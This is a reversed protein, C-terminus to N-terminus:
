DKNMLIKVREHKDDLMKKEKDTRVIIMLIGCNYFIPASIVYSGMERSPCLKKDWNKKTREEDNRALYKKASVIRSTFRKREDPIMMLNQGMWVDDSIMSKYRKLSEINFKGPWMIKKNDDMIPYARFIGDIKGNMINERIKVLLSERSLLNGLVIIKTDLDGILTIEEKFWKFMEECKKEDAAEAPSEVDDLIIDQPRDQGYRIGSISQGVCIAMIKAKYKPIYISLGDEGDAIRARYDSRLLKNNNFENRINELIQRIQKKTKGVIVIFKRQSRGLILWIPYSLSFITSKGCGRFGMIAIMKNSEDESLRLMDQHFLASPYRMYDHFYTSFFWSHSRSTIEIREERNTIIKEIDVKKMIKSKM